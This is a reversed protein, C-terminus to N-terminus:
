EKLMLIADVGNYYNKRIAVEKYGFKKYLKIAFYNDSRVELTSSKDTIKLYFELIRSGIKKNRKDKRVELMNIETREYIDSYYLYAVIEDNEIYILYRAYPNVKYERIVEQEDIFSNKIIDIRDVTLKEIM